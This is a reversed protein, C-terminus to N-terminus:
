PICKIHFKHLILIACTEYKKYEQPKVGEVCRRCIPYPAMEFKMDIKLLQIRLETTSNEAQYRLTVPELRVPAVKNQGQALCM